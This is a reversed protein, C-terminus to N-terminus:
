PSSLKMGNVLALLFRQQKRVHAPLPCGHLSFPHEKQDGKIDGGSGRGVRFALKFWWFQDLFSYKVKPYLGAVVPPISLM